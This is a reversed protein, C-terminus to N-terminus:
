ASSPLCAAIAWSQAFHWLFAVKRPKVVAQAGHWWSTWLPTRPALQAPQWAVVTAKLSVSLANSWVFVANGSVSACM